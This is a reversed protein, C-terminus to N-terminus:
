LQCLDKAMAYEGELKAIQSAHWRARDLKGLVYCCKCRFDYRMQGRYLQFLETAPHEGCNACPGHPRYQDFELEPDLVIEGTALDLEGPKM